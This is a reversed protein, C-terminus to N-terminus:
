LAGPFQPLKVPYADMDVLDMAVPEMILSYFLSAFIAGAM